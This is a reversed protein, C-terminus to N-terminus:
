QSQSYPNGMYYNNTLFSNTKQQQARQKTRKSQRDIDQLVKRKREDDFSSYALLQEYDENNSSTQKTPSDDSLKSARVPNEPSM